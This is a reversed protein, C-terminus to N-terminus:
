VVAETHSRFDVNGIAMWVIYLATFFANTQASAPTVKPHKPVNEASGSGDMVARSPVSEPLM